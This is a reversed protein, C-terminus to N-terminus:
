TTLGASWSQSCPATMRSQSEIRRPPIVSRVVGSWVDVHHIPAKSIPAKSNLHERTERTERRFDNARDQDALLGDLQRGREYHEGPSQRMVPLLLPPEESKRRGSAAGIWCLARCTVPRFRGRSVRRGNPRSDLANKTEPQRQRSRWPGRSQSAEFASCGRIRRSKQRLPRMATPAPRHVHGGPSVSLARRAIHPAKPRALTLEPAAFWRLGFSTSGKWLIGSCSSRRVWSPSRGISSPM